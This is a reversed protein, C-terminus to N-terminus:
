AVGRRSRDVTSERHIGQSAAQRCTNTSDLKHRSRSSSTRGISREGGFHADFAASGGPKLSSTSNPGIVDSFGAGFRWRARGIGFALASMGFNVGSEETTNSTTGESFKPSRFLPRVGSM